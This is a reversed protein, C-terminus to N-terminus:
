AMDDICDNGAMACIYERSFGDNQSDDFSERINIFSHPQMGASVRSWVGDGRLQERCGVLISRCFEMPFIAAKRATM